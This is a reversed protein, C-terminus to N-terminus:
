GGTYGFHSVHSLLTNTQIHVYLATFNVDERSQGGAVRTADVAVKRGVSSSPSMIKAQKTCGLLQRPNTPTTSPEARPAVVTCSTVKEQDEVILEQYRDQFVQCVVEEQYEKVHSLKVMRPDLTFRLIKEKTYGCPQGRHTGLRCSHKTIDM